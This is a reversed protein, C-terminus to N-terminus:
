VEKAVHDPVQVWGWAERNQRGQRDRVSSQRRALTVNDSIWSGYGEHCLLMLRSNRAAYPLKRAIPRTSAYKAPASMLLRGLPSSPQNGEKDRIAQWGYDCGPSMMGIDFSIVAKLRKRAKVIM